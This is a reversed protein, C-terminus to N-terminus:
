SINWAWGISFYRLSWPLSKYLIYLIIPLFLFSPLFVPHQLPALRHTLTQLPPWLEVFATQGDSNLLYTNCLTLTFSTLVYYLKSTLSVIQSYCIHINYNFYVFSFTVTLRNLLYITNHTHQCKVSKKTILYIWELRIRM